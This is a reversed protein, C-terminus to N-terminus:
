VQLRCGFSSPESVALEYEREYPYCLQPALNRVGRIALTALTESFPLQLGRFQTQASRYSEQAAIHFAVAVPFRVFADLVMAFRVMALNKLIRVVAICIVVGRITAPSLGAGLALRILRLECAGDFSATAELFWVVPEDSLQGALLAFPLFM